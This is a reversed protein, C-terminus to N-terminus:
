NPMYVENLSIAVWGYYVSNNIKTPLPVIRKELRKANQNNTFKNHYIISDIDSLMEYLDTAKNQTGVKLFALILFNWEDIYAKNGNQKNSKVGLNVVFVGGNQSVVARQNFLESFDKNSVNDLKEVFYKKGAIDYGKAQLKTTLLSILENEITEFFYM